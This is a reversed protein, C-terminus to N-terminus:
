EPRLIVRRPAPLFRAAEPLVAAPHRRLARDHKSDAAVIRLPVHPEFPLVIEIEREQAVVIAPDGARVADPLFLIEVTPFEEPDLARREQNVLAPLDGLDPRPDPHFSM